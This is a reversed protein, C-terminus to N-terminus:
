PPPQTGGGGDGGLAGAANLAIVAVAVVLTTIAIGDVISQNRLYTRLLVEARFAQPFAVVGEGSWPQRVGNMQQVFDVAVVWAGDDAVSSLDGEAIAVNPGLYRALETTGEPTLVVRVREGSKPPVTSVMPKYAYCAQSMSLAVIAVVAGARRFRNLLM